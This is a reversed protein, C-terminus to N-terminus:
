KKLESREMLPSIKVTREEEIIERSQVLSMIQDKRRTWESVGIIRKLRENMKLHKGSLLCLIYKAKGV